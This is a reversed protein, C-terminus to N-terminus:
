KKAIFSALSIEKKSAQFFGCQRSWAHQKGTNKSQYFKNILKKM